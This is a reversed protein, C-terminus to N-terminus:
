LGHTQLTTKVYIILTEMSDDVTFRYLSPSELSRKRRGLLSSQFKIITTGKLTEGMVNALKEMETANRFLM